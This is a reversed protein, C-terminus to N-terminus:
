GLRPGRLGVFSPRGGHTRLSARFDPLVDSVIHYRRRSRESDFSDAPPWPHPHGPIRFVSSKSSPEVADVCGCHVPGRVVLSNNEQANHRTRPSCRCIARGRRGCTRVTWATRASVGRRSWGTARTEMTLSWGLRAACNYGVALVPYKLASSSTTYTLRSPTNSVATVVDRCVSDTVSCNRKQRHPREIDM